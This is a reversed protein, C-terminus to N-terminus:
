NKDNKIDNENIFEIDAKIKNLKESCYNKLFIARQYLIPLDELKINDSELKESILELENMADEFSIEETQTKKM